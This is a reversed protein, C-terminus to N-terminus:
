DAGAAQFFAIREADSPHSAFAIGLWNDDPNPSTSPQTKASRQQALKDFLTLMVTPAIGAAKLVRVAHADAEHEAQRSYHAQGLLAPVAALLTSFDGLVVAGMAGLVTAQVLMRLGHRHQLHGLEHALVATLVKEDGDVLAVMDDTLILTGGPLALANPGIRSKRFVLNYAPRASHPVPTLAQAVAQRLHAQTSAPLESPSMLTRDIATLTSEGLSVDVSLPTLAVIGRAVWPLGWANIALALVVLALVSGTVWRWSQQVTVVLPERLGAQTYWADWAATNACQLSGGDKLHALRQGHRTREPWQVNAVPLSRNVHAGTIQLQGDSVQLTVPHGQATHGDFYVAALPVPTTGPM